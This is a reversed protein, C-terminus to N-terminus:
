NNFFEKKFKEIRENAKIMYNSSLEIGIYNRGTKISAIATTGSGM